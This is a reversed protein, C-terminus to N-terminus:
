SVETVSMKRTGGEARKRREEDSLMNLIFERRLTEDLTLLMSIQEPMKVFVSAAKVQESGSFGLRRLEATAKERLKQQPDENLMKEQIAAEREM